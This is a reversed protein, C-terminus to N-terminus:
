FMEMGHSFKERISYQWKESSDEDLSDEHVVGQKKSEQENSSNIPMVHEVITTETSDEEPYKDHGAEEKGNQQFRVMGHSSKERMSCQRGVHFIEMRSANKVQSKMWPIIM